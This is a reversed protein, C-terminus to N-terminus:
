EVPFFFVKRIKMRAGGALRIWPNVELRKTKKEYQKMEKLLIIVWRSYGKMQTVADGGRLAKSAIIFMHHM